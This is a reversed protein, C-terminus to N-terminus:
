LTELRQRATELAMISSEGTMKKDVLLSADYELEDIFFFEALEPVEAMTRAREQILPMMQRVYDVDLPLKVQPPLGSDLFPIARQTFDELSLSRIYVGNMWNLKDHNLVAATRSIRELSFNAVLEQRSIIETKDDLSWGLLALFNVMADPLYGM